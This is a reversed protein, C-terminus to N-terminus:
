SLRPDARLSLYRVRNCIACRWPYLNLFPLIREQLFGRRQLREWSKAGCNRCPEELPSVQMFPKVKRSARRKRFIHHPRKQLTHM